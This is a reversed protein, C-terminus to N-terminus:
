PTLRYVYNFECFSFPKCLEWISLASLEIQWPLSVKKNVVQMLEKSDSKFIIEKLGNRTAWGVAARLALTEAMLVSSVLQKFALGDVLIGRGNCCVVALGAVDNKVDVAVDTNCKIIGEPPTSWRQSKDETGDKLHLKPPILPDKGNVRCFEAALFMAKQVVM